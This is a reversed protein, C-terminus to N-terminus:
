AYGKPRGFSLARFTAGGCALTHVVYRCTPNGEITLGVKIIDHFPFRAELM